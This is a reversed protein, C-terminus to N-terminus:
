NETEMTPIEMKMCCIDKELLRAKKGNDMTLLVM